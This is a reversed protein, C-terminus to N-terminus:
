SSVKYALLHGVLKKTTEALHRELLYVLLILLDKGWYQIVQLGKMVSLVFNM